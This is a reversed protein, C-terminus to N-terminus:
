RATAISETSDGPVVDYQNKLFWVVCRIDRAACM